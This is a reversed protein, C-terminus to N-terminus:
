PYSLVSIFLFCTTDIIISPANRVVSKAIGGIVDMM